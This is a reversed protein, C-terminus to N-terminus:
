AFANFIERIDTVHGFSCGEDGASLALEMESKRVVHWLVNARGAGGLVDFPELLLLILGM